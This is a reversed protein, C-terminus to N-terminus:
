RTYSHSRHSCSGRYSCCSYCNGPCSRCRCWNPCVRTVHCCRPPFSHTSSAVSVFRRSSVMTPSNPLKSRFKIEYRCICICVCAKKSKCRCKLDVTNALATDDFHVVMTRPHIVTYSNSIVLYVIGRQM